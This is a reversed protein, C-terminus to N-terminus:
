EKRDSSQKDLEAKTTAIISHAIKTTEEVTLNPFRIKLIKVIQEIVNLWVNFDNM